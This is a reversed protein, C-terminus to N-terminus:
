RMSRWCHMLNCFLARILQQLFAARAARTGDLGKIKDCLKTAGPNVQSRTHYSIPHSLCLALNRILTM